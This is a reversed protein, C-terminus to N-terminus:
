EPCAIALLEAADVVDEAPPLEPAIWRQEAVGYQDLLVVASAPRGSEIRTYRSSASLDPDALARFPLSLRQEVAPLDHETVPVVVLVDTDLIELKRARAALSTLLERPPDEPDIFVLVLQKLGRYGSRSHVRHSADRLAFPPAMEGRILTPAVASM